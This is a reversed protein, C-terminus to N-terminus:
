ARGEAKNVLAKTKMYQCKPEYPGNLGCGDAEKGDVDCKPLYLLADKVAELLEPGVEEWKVNHGQKQKTM